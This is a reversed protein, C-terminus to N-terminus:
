KPLVYLLVGALALAIVIVLAWQKGTLFKGDGGDQPPETPILFPIPTM